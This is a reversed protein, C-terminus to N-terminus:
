NVPTVGYIDLGGNSYVLILSPDQKLKDFDQPTFRSQQMEPLVDQFFLRDEQDILLYSQQSYWEGLETKESYGFHYPM